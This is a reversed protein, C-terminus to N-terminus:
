SCESVVVRVSVISNITIDRTESASQERVGERTTCGQRQLMMAGVRMDGGVDEIIGGVRAYEEDKILAVRGLLAGM